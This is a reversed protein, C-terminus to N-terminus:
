QIINKVERIATQLQNDRDHPIDDISTSRFEENLEVEVDPEVGVGQINKGSPSFYTAITYKLGAGNSFGTDIQQVLGKGYTKTGVIVARRYDKLAASMIESASASYENVIVSMPIDIYNSDSVEERRNGYRDEVYVILGSPLLSDCIKVVQSYDGGPNSRLDVVVGRAGQSILSKLNALFDNYVDNDFQKIRLYGIGDDLMESSVYSVNINQRTVQFDLYEMSSERFVTITVVTGPTGKIKKVILEPDKLDTVDEHDVKVIKDGIKIGAEKAPSDPFVDSVTLLYNEDMSVLVGIGSYNGSADEMFEKMEEPDYYVTYPDDLAGAMGKIAGEFLKNVDVAKYYRAQLLDKVRNFAEINKIDVGDEDFFVAYQQRFWSNLPRSVFNKWSVLTGVSVIYGAFFSVASCILVIAVIRVVSKRKM